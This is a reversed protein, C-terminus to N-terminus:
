NAGVWCHAGLSLGAICLFQLPLPSNKQCKKLYIISKRLANHACKIAKKTAKQLNRFFAHPETCLSIYSISSILYIELTNIASAQLCERSEQGLHSKTAKSKSSWSTSRHTQGPSRLYLHSKLIVPTDTSSKSIWILLQATLWGAESTVYFADRMRNDSM